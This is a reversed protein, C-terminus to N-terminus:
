RPAPGTTTGIRLESTFAVADPAGGEIAEILASGAARGKEVAPQALTTLVHPAIGEVRVGDFGVISLDEPVSLGLDLAARLVGAALMDSQAIIATPREAAPRDLLALGAIRGEERYSGATSIGGADPYVDRVGAIRGSSTYGTAAAEREPTLPGRTRDDDLPLTVMAVREHGLDRVYEAARRSADRNDLSILVAGELGDAEIAVVPVGRRRLVAVSEDLRTSCGVLIVGDMPATALSTTGDGQDTLLLLGDGSVGLSDAIGDLLAINVPDRFADAISDEMVVAVVGSRGRRLSRARPDPGAYGLRAAADIVRQRTAEAVPGTGSFALSATSASVGAARAVDSLTARTVPTAPEATM